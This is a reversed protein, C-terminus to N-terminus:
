EWVIGFKSLNAGYLEVMRWFWDTVEPSEEFNGIKERVFKKFIRRSPNMRTIMPYRNDLSSMQKAARCIFANERKHNNSTTEQNLRFKHWAKRTIRNANEPTVNNFKTALSKPRGSEIMSHLTIIDFYRVLGGIKLWHLEQYLEDNSLKKFRKESCVVRLARNLFTQLAKFVDKTTGAWLPICYSLKSILLGECLMKKAKHCAHRALIRLIILRKELFYMMSKAGTLIYERFNQDQGLTVGLIKVGEAQQVTVDGM